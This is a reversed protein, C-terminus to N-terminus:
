GGRKPIMQSSFYVAGTSLPSNKCFAPEKQAYKGKCSKGAFGSAALKTVM